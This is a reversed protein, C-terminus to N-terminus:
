GPTERVGAERVLSTKSQHFRGGGGNTTQGGDIVLTQGSIYRAEDSALYLAANAIDDPFGAIGLPNTAAIRQATLEIEQHDGALVAATMATVTNGPAIANVRIGSSGLESAVSKTLGIVAHKCATYCHPGLGGTVGAISATSIISGSQQPLMVRAAHKMGLFVGRVLISVTRDWADVPTDAIPGIVGVIGANNFMIDLRGFESVALDVAAAVDAELSVDTAIFRTAPGLEAALQEGRDRQLDAIVVSAGEAIFRRVTGEGIGSAGGTVIAIRGEIRGNM